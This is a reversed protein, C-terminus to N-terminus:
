LMLKILEQKARTRAVFSLNREQKKQDLTVSFKNPILPVNDFTEILFVRDNELGKSKHITMLAIGEKEDDDFVTEIFREVELITKFKGFLLSLIELKEDMAVVKPHNDPKEIGKAKLEEKVKERHNYLRDYCDSTNENSDFPAMLMRLGKEYEKGVIYAKKGQNVLELFVVILPRTNRCLVIDGEEIEEVKGERPEEGEEAKEYPEVDSYIEKAHRVLAKTCRYCISLPLEITNPENAFAEFSNPDAGRFGYIAQKPDGVAIRRGTFPKVLRKLFLQDLKSMDQAEDIFLYDYQPLRIDTNRVAMEIMDQFDMIMNWGTPSDQDEYYRRLVKVSVKIQEEEPHMGYNECLKTLTERKLETMTARALKVIREVQLINAWKERPKSEEYFPEIFGILKHDNIKISGEGFHNIISKAGISHMTSCDVGAPLRIRLEKTINRTFAVFLAKKGYPILKSGEVITTTKGSGPGAKVVVHKNTTIIALFIDQQYTSPNKM